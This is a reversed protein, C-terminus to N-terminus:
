KLKGKDTHNFSHWLELSICNWRVELVSLIFKINKRGHMM